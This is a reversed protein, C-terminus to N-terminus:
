RCKESNILVAVVHVYRASFSKNLNSISTNTPYFELKVSNTLNPLAPPVKGLVGLHRSNLGFFEQDSDASSNSATTHGEMDSDSYSSKRKSRRPLTAFQMSSSKSDGCISSTGNTSKKSNIKDDDSFNRVQGHDVKAKIHQNKKKNQFKRPAGEEFSNNKNKSINNTSRHFM